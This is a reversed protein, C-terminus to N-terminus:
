NGGTIERLEANIHIPKAFEAGNAILQEPVEKIKRVRPDFEGILFLTYDSSHSYFKTGETQVATAFERRAVAVTLAFFPDLSAEAANDYVSFILKCSM